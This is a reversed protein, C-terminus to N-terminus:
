ALPESGESAWLVGPTVGYSGLEDRVRRLLRNEVAVNLRLGYGEGLQGTLIAALNNEGLAARAHGLAKTLAREFKALEADRAQEHEGRERRWQERQAAVEADAADQARRAEESEALARLRQLKEVRMIEGFLQEAEAVAASDGATAEPSITKLRAYLAPLQDERERAEEIGLREMIQERASM